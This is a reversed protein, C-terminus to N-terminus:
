QAHKDCDCDGGALQAGFGRCVGAGQVCTCVEHGDVPTTASCKLIPHPCQILTRWEDSEGYEGTFAAKHACARVKSGDAARQAVWPLHSVDCALDRNVLCHFCQHQYAFAISEAELRDM